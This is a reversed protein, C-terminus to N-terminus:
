KEPHVVEDADKPAITPIYMNNTDLEGPIESFTFQLCDSGNPDPGVWAYSDDKVSLGAYFFQDDWMFFYTGTYDEPTMDPMNTNLLKANHNYQPFYPDPVGTLTKATMTLVQAGKYEDATVKGDVTIKQGTTLKVANLPWGPNKVGEPAANLTFPNDEGKPVISVADLLFTVDAGSPNSYDFEVTLYGDASATFDKSILTFPAGPVEHEAVIEEGGIRVVLLIPNLPNRKRELFRLTYQKGSVFGDVDQSIIQAGQAFAIYKGSMEEPKPLEWFPGSDDNLGFGGAFNWEMVPYDTSNGYHPYTPNIIGEEFNGNKVLNAAHIPIVGILAVFLAVAMIFVKKM